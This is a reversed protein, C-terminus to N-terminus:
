FATKGGDDGPKKAKRKAKEFLDDLDKERSQEKGLAAEFKDLSAAKRGRVRSSAEDWRGEDLIPKGTEDLQEPMDTRFVIYNPPNVTAGAWSLEVDATGSEVAM